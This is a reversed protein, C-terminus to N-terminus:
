GEAPAPAGADRLARALKMYLNPHYRKSTPDNSVTSATLGRGALKIHGSTPDYWVRLSLEISKGMLLDDGSRRRRDIGQPIQYRTAPVAATIKAIGSSNRFFAFYCEVGIGIEPNTLLQYGRFFLLGANARRAKQRPLNHTTGPWLACGPLDGEQPSTGM